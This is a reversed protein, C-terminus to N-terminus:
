PHLRDLSSAIAEPDTRTASESLAGSVLVAGRFGFLYRLILRGDTEALRAGDRDLDLAAVCSPSDLFAAIASPDTRTARGGLASATLGAGRRGELHRLALLGDTLADARGDRDLDLGCDSRYATASLQMEGGMGAEYVYAAYWTGPEPDTVICDEFVGPRDSDCAARDLGPAAGRALRLRYDSGARDDANGVFVLRSAGAPVDLTLVQEIEGPGLRGSLRRAAAMSEGGPALSAQGVLAEIVSLHAAVATNFALDEGDCAGYGGSAVGALIEKGDSDTMLLPSGSDGGCTDSGPGIGDSEWCLFADAALDEGCPSTVVQGVRKVGTGDMDGSAGGFGVIRGTTGVGPSAEALAVPDVGLAAERLALVALDLDPFDFGIPIAVSAIELIGANQFLVRYEDVRPGYLKGPQCLGGHADCLCHAATLARTPGILSLSCRVQWPGTGGARHLLLGAFPHDFTVVGNFIRPEIGAQRADAPCDSYLALVAAVLAAARAGFGGAGGGRRM